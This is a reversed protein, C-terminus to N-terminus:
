VDVPSAEATPRDDVGGSLDAHEPLPPPTGGWAPCLPKHHCWDCLRSKNPRWDGNEHARLIAQWLAVVKREMSALDDEDPEYRVVEGNGLYILQLMRPVEGRLRWLALAYFRMQFLARQQFAEAPARGTKYDVVRMAGGPAVDLRDIYGRLTLGSSLEVEVAYEREAPELRTPDELRFYTSLLEDTGALWETLPEGDASEQHALLEALAPDSELLEAWAPEVLAAARDLTRQGAPLDFLRELVAHVVTGRTAAPSPPEPLRDIVRFRYLLPCTM